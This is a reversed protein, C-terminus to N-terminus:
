HRNVYIPIIKKSDPDKFKPMITEIGCTCATQTCKAYQINPQFEELFNDSYFNYHKDEGYLLQGCTGSIRGTRSISVWDVGLGCNWDYFNNLKRLLVENDKLKHTKGADDVVRVRSIYHRNNKLFFFPNVSRAKHRSMVAIQEPSYVIGHGTIEVYRITWKYKSDLMYDVYGMCKEWEGPRPDMMTSVSVIVNNKYLIDCVDRFHKIDVYENHVSLTVRNFYPAIKEWYSLKKSGNSSMNIMCNFNEKLWICLEPLKKWHTPEGGIFYFDFKKKTTHEKYYNVMHTINKKFLDLDIWEDTGGNFEPACYYCKYNCINGLLIDFRLVDKSPFGNTVSTINMPQEM